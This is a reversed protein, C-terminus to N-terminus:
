ICIYISLYISPYWSLILFVGGVLALLLFIIYCFVSDNYPIFSDGFWKVGFTDNWNIEFSDVNPQLVHINYNKNRNNNNDM